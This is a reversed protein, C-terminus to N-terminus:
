ISKASFYKSEPISGTPYDIMDTHLLEGLGSKRYTRRQICELLLEPKPGTLTFRSRSRTIGTYILERTLIPNMRDPLVLATHEFESGQSKHVTMAYVTEVHNLRSGLIKKFSGDAMPFVVKLSKGSPKRGDRVFLAIGIDGNMLGLSYDNRTIMVPRGQYWGDVSQILGKRHLLDAATRNLGEVGWPGKRLATLLQFRGFLELIRKFWRNESEGDPVGSDIHKLYERYGVPTYDVGSGTFGASIGDLVLRAFGKDDCSSVTMQSIDPFGRDWVAKVNAPNGANVEKALVGIGSTDDFRHSKKLVTIHQDLLTGNEQFGTVSYGTHQKIWQLTKTTYCDQDVNRCMDGLVSGAEVSALQDKDGLLILRSDSPLAELLAAMLELNIMSAEDVVLLDVHLQNARNHAFHRTGPRSGLLRHLTAVKGSVHRGIAEPLNNIATVMSETLRAAAKGTPAALRIRLTRNKEMELEQLLGLLQVVATTKGTGPGGSIVTFNSKVAIAAAVSQWHPQNKKIEGPSRLTEFLQDLRRPLDHPIKHQFALRKLIDQAVQQTYQWYRRLYLRGANLVLPSDGTGPATLSSNLLAKEWTARSLGALITSPLPLMGEGTDNEPPLSLAADPEALVAEIDLCTHGRGLQHCTLAAALIVLKSARPQQEKLFYAFARDLPRIWGLRTWADLLQFLNDPVM